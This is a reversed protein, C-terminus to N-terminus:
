AEVNDMLRKLWTIFITLEEESFGKRMLEEMELVVETCVEQLQKGQETLFLRKVRADEDVSKRVVWGKSVMGDVISTLSPAKIGLTEALEKLTQGDRHWLQSLVSVQSTTLGYRSLKQDHINIMNRAARKIIPGLWRDYPITM